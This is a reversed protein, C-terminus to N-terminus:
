TKEFQHLKALTVFQGEQKSIWMKKKQIQKLITEFTGRFENEKQGKKLNATIQKEFNKM